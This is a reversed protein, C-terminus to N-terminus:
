GVRRIMWRCFLCPGNLGLRSIGLLSAIDEIGPGGAVWRRGQSRREESIRGGGKYLPLAPINYTAKDAFTPGGDLEFNKEIDGRSMGPRLKSASELADAVLRCGQSESSGACVSHARPWYWSAFILALIIFTAFKIAKRM